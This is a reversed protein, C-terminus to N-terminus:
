GQPITLITLQAGTKNFIYAGLLGDNYLNVNIVAAVGANVQAVGNDPAVAASPDGSTSFHPTFTVTSAVSGFGRGILQGTEPDGLRVEAGITLPDEDLEVGFAKIRGSVYPVWDYDQAEITYSLITHRQAAGTFNTFAAEPISYFRPHKAAFDSPVWKGATENWTVVQGDEPPLTDDYDSALVISAAPGEPGAPSDVKLHLVPNEATGSQEMTTGTGPAVREATMTIQPTAGVQGPSGMQKAKYATGTWVLKDDPSLREVFEAKQAHTLFSRSYLPDWYWPLFALKFDGQEKRAQMAASYFYGTMGNGTSEMWIETGGVTGITQLLGNAIQEAAPWFAVESGHFFQVTFSRGTEGQKATGVAYGGNLRDFILEKSNSRQTHPRYRVDIWNHFNKVTEFLKGSATLEHALIYAKQGTRRTTKFYGRGGIYTSIGMQRAKVVIMRVFGQTELQKQALAELYLQAANLRFPHQEGAKDRIRLHQEAYGQFGGKGALQIAKIATHVWRNRQEPSDAAEAAEIARATERQVVEAPVEVSEAAEALQARVNDWLTPM